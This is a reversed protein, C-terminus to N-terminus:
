DGSGTAVNGIEEGDPAIQLTHYEWIHNRGGVLKGCHCMVVMNPRDCNSMSIRHGNPCYIWRHHRDNSNLMARRIM